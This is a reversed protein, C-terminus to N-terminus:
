PHRRETPSASLESLPGRHPQGLDRRCRRRKEFVGKQRLYDLVDDFRPRASMLESPLELFEVARRNCVQVRGESDAMMIGQNVNEFTAEFLAFTNLLTRAQEREIEARRRETIDDHTSVWGGGRMSQNTISITRGDALVVESVSCAKDAFERIYDDADGALAGAAIHLQLVREALM